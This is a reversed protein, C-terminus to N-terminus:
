SENNWCGKSEADYVAIDKANIEPFFGKIKVVRKQLKKEFGKDKKVSLAIKKISKNRAIQELVHDDEESMSWGHFVIKEGLHPLVKDYVNKLYTSEEIRSKKKGSNGESVFIPINKKDDWEEGLKDLLSFYNGRAIKHENGRMDRKLILNGHPYFVLTSSTADGIPKRLFEWGEIFESGQFCDKFWHNNTKKNAYMMTWYVILDYNLSVVTNFGKLFKYIPEFDTGMNKHPVHIEQVTKLLNNRISEYADDIHKNDIGLAQNIHYSDWLKSLIDEFNEEGFYKFISVVKADILGRKKAEKYLNQYKFEPSIAISTGNGLIISGGDFEKSIEKWKHIKM